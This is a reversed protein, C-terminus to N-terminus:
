VVVCVGLCGCLCGSLGGLVLLLGKEGLGEGVLIEASKAAESKLLEPTSRTMDCIHLLRTLHKFSDRYVYVHTM